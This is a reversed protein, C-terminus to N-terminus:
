RRWRNIAKIARSPTIRVSVRSIITWIGCSSNKERMVRVKPAHSALRPRAQRTAM